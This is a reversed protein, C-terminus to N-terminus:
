CGNPSLQGVGAPRPVVAAETDETRDSRGHLRTDKAFVPMRWSSKCPTGPAPSRAAVCLRIFGGIVELEAVTVIFGGILELKAVGVIVGNVEVEAVTVAAAAIIAAAAASSREVVVTAM